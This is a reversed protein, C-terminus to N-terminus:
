HSAVIEKLTSYMVQGIYVGAITRITGYGIAFQKIAFTLKHNTKKKNCMCDNVDKTDLYAINYWNELIGKTKNRYEELYGVSYPTEVYSNKSSNM